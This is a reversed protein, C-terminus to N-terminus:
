KLLLVKDTLEEKFTQSPLFKKMGKKFYKAIKPKAKILATKKKATYLTMSNQLSKDIFKLHKEISSKQFTNKNKSYQVDEIFSIRGLKLDDEETVYAIYWNNDMFILKICKLNKYIKEDNFFKIDRYEHLEVAYKLRKFTIKGEFSSVDEFPTNFFKYIHEHQNTYQALEKFIEPDADHAMKFFWGIENANDFAEIFIDIPKILKFIKKRGNKEVIINDFYEALEDLLRDLQKQGIGIEDQLEKDYSTIKNDTRSNFTEVLRMYKEFAKLQTAM